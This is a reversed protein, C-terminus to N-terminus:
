SLMTTYITYVEDEEILKLLEEKTAVTMFGHIELGNEKVYNVISDYGINDNIGFMECFEEQEEMYSLMDTYHRIAIDENKMDDTDVINWSSLYPYKEEDWELEKMGGTEYFFGINSLDSLDESNVPACWIVGLEQKKIYEIFDEYDMIKNLSVFANYYTNNDLEEIREKAIDPTGSALVTNDNEYQEELTKNYELNVGALWAFANGTPPKLINSNYFVIENKDIYGSVDIFEKSYSFNQQIIFDYEGYGNSKIIASQRHAEPVFLETYTSIDLEFRTTNGKVIEEPEYYLNDVIDPLAFNIFMIIAIVIAVITVGLKIFARRISKRIMKLFKIDANDIEDRKEQEIIKNDGSINEFEPIEEDYLYDSIAIHKEIDAEIKEKDSEDLKGNKYLEMLESYKM